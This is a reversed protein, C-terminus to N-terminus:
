SMLPSSRARIPGIATAMRTTISPPAGQKKLKEGYDNMSQVFDDGSLSVLQSNVGLTLTYTGSGDGHLNVSRDEHICGSLIFALIALLGVTAAIRRPNRM